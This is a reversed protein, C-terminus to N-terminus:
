VGDVELEILSRELASYIMNNYENTFVDDSPTVGTLRFEAEGTTVDTVRM